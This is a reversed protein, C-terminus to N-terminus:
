TYLSMESIFSPAFALKRSKNVVIEARPVEAELVCEHAQTERLGVFGSYLSPSFSIKKTRGDELSFSPPIWTEM